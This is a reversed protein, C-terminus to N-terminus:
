YYHNETKYIRRIIVVAILGLGIMFVGGTNALGFDNAIFATNYVYIPLNMTTNGPAGKTTMMVLDLKQLMSTAGLITTTGIINKTLPLVIYINKQFESAGDMIAAEMVSDSLSTMEAMLLITVIAAYPLWTMTVAFFATKSNMFWNPLNEFGLAGLVSNVAGFSPNLLLVFLMGVAASSIINPLMFVTRTFKWYFKKRALILALVVGILIHVTSQLFMWIITNITSQMFEKDTFLTIYNDIGTFVPKSAVIWETFSTLILTLVPVAYVFIFLVTAPLLFIFRWRKSSKM